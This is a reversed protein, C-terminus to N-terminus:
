GSKKANKIHKCLLQQSGAIFALLSGSVVLLLLAVVM